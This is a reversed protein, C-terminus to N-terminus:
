ITESISGGGKTAGAITAANTDDLPRGSSITTDNAEENLSKNLSFTLSKHSGGCSSGGGGATSGSLSRCCNRTIPVDLSYARNRATNMSAIVDSNRHHMLIPSISKPQNLIVGGGSGGGCCYHMSGEGGAGGCIAVSGGGGGGGVDVTKSKELLRTKKTTTACGVKDPQSESEVASEAKQALLQLKKSERSDFNFSLRGTLQRLRSIISKSASTTGNTGNVANGGGGNSKGLTGSTGVGGGVGSADCGSNNNNSANRIKELKQQQSLSMKKGINKNNNNNSSNNNNNLGAYLKGSSAAAVATPVGINMNECDQVARLQHLAAAAQQQYQHLHQQQTGHHSSQFAPPPQQQLPGGGQPENSSSNLSTSKDSSSCMSDHELSRHQRQHHYYVSNDSVVTQIQIGDSMRRSNSYQDLSIARNSGFYTRNTHQINGHSGRIRTGTQYYEGIMSPRKERSGKRSSQSNPHSQKRHSSETDVKFKSTKEAVDVETATESDGSESGEPLDHLEPRSKVSIGSQSRPLQPSGTSSNSLGGTGGGISSSIGGGGGSSGGATGTGTTGTTATSANESSQEAEAISRRQRSAADNLKKYYDLAVRVPMIILDTLEPLLEGLAEFLPLLVLGIFRVQSGPKSVKDPDMFPTVPLGESKEAASQAFFEQLLRDLWPEAVDMPRAENSIDAVKILVMCLLNTHVKNNYDFIPTAEQFQTLIENHRAMDTALICRIIGERVDKYLEKDMNRFINCEPHELLRFAISCHHNELPSIDNYRLALETRANIQYINNYGPHDLDHCICSVLLILVELEGLRQILNTHWTIAYM